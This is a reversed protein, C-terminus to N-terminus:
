RLWSLLAGQFNDLQHVRLLSQEMGKICVIKCFIRNEATDRESTAVITDSFKHFETSFDRALQKRECSVVPLNPIVIITLLFMAFCEIM